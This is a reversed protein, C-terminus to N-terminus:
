VYHVAAREKSVTCSLIKYPIETYSFIRISQLYGMGNKEKIVWHPIRVLHISKRDVYTFRTLLSDYQSVFIFYFNLTFNLIDCNGTTLLTLWINNINVIIKNNLVIQTNASM